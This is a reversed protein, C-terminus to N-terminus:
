ISRTLLSPLLTLLDPSQIVLKAGNPFELVGLSETAKVEPKVEVAIFEDSRQDLKASWYILQHYVLKHQKAYESKTQGSKRWAEVHAQWQKENM